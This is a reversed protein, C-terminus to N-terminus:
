VARVRRSYGADVTAGVVMIAVTIAFWIWYGSSEIVTAIMALGVMALAAFFFAHFWSQSSASTKLRAVILSIIGVANIAVMTWFASPTSLGFM